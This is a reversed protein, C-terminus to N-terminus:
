SRDALMQIASVGRRGDADRSLYVIADIAERLARNPDIGSQGVTASAYLSELRHIAGTISGAHLTSLSGSLGISMASIMDFVEEGRVEGVVLRDPRMRLTERVLKRINAQEGEGYTLRRTQLKICHPHDVKLESVDEVLIIREHPASRGLLAGLLTTKGVGPAGAIILNLRRSVADEFWVRQEATIAGFGELDELTFPKEPFRRISVFPGGQAVPDTVVHMRSGDSLEVDVWPNARNVAREAKAVHRHVFAKLHDPSYFAGAFPHLRGGMEYVIQNWGNILIDTVGPTTMLPQIPGFGVLEAIAAEVVADEDPASLKPGRRTLTKLFRSLEEPTAAIEGVGATPYARAAEDVLAAILGQREDPSMM